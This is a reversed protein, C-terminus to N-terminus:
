RGECTPEERPFSASGGRRASVGVMTCGVCPSGRMCLTLWSASAWSASSDTAYPPRQRLTGQRLVVQGLEARQGVRREPEDM